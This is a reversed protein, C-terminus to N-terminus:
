MSLKYVPNIYSNFVLSFTDLHGTKTAKRSHMLSFCGNAVKLYVHCLTTNYSVATTTQTGHVSLFNGLSVNM